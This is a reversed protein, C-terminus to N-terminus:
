ARDAGDEPPLHITMRTGAGPTSRVDMTGGHASVMQHAVALGVGTGQPKTTFYLDFVRPLHEPAIGEGTDAVEIFHGRGERRAAVRVRGGSPTAEIANRVLNALVQRFQDPDLSAEGVGPADVELTVGRAVALPRDPEVADEVFAALDVARRALAPPRAFELFQQVIANIRRAESEIVGVLEGLEADPEAGPPPTFERALRRAAMAIGNLPNRVEHAVTSALEGMATLRDRRRLAEQAAQHRESLAGYERRLGLFGIAVLTLVLAMSLSGFLRVLTQREARRVGDLRLGLRLTADDFGEVPLPGALDLVPVGGVVAERERAAGGAPAPGLDPLAAEDVGHVLRLSGATLAVYVLEDTSAAMDGLLTDLSFPRQLRAVATADANVIIAGGGARRVGAAVRTEGGSGRAAHMGSVAEREAGALLQDLLRGGGAGPGPGPGLGGGPGVRSGGFGFGRPGGSGRQRVGRADFVTVRFLGNDRALADLTAQDLGGRRDLEALLRANDLLRSALDQEAQAGALQNVRVAATVTARLSVAQDRLLELLGQRTARYDVWGVAVLAASVLAAAALVPANLTLRNPM